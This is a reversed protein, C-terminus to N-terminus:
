TSKTKATQGKAQALEDALRNYEAQQQAVQKKLTVVDQSGASGKQAKGLEEQAQILESILAYTRALILSCFLCFGCLYCNRQAFALRLLMDHHATDRVGLQEKAQQREAMTKFLRQCADVFLISVFIISIKVGYLVKGVIPNTAFFSFVARRMKFPLPLILGLFVLMEAVLLMFCLSYHITM